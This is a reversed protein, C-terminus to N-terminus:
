INSSFKFLYIKPFSSASGKAEQAPKWFLKFFM